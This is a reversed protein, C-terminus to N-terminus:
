GTCVINLKNIESESTSQNDYSKNEKLINAIKRGAFEFNFSLKQNSQNAISLLRSGVPGRVVFEIHLGPATREGSKDIQVDDKVDPWIM